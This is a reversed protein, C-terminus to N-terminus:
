LLFRAKFSSLTAEPPVEAQPLVTSKM